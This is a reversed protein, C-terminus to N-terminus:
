LSVSIAKGLLRRAADAEFPWGTSLNMRRRMPTEASTNSPAEISMNMRVTLEPSGRLSRRSDLSGFRAVSMASRVSRIRSSSESQARYQSQSLPTPPHKVPLQSRPTVTLPTSTRVRVCCAADEVSRSTVRAVNSAMTTPM